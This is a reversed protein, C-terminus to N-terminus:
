PSGARSWDGPMRSDVGVAGAAVGLIGLGAPVVLWVWGAVLGVAGIGVLSCLLLGSRTIPSLSRWDEMAPM